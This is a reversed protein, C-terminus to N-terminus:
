WGSASVEVQCYVVSVHYLCGHRRRSEFGAIGPLWRGYVWTKSWVAVPNSRWTIHRRLIILYFLTILSRLINQKKYIWIFCMLRFRAFNLIEEQRSMNSVATRM